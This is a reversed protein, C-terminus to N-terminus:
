AGNLSEGLKTMKKQLENETAKVFEEVKGTKSNMAKVKGNKRNAAAIKFIGDLEKSGQILKFYGVMAEEERHYDGCLHCKTRVINEKSVALPLEQDTM